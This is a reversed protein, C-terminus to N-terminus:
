SARLIGGLQNLLCKSAIRALPPVACGIAPFRPTTALIFLTRKFHPPILEALPPILYVRM